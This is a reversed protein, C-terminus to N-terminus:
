FEITTHGSLPDNFINLVFYIQIDVTQIRESFSIYNDSKLYDDKSITRIDNKDRFDDLFVFTSKFPM